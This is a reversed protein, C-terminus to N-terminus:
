SFLIADQNQLENQALEIFGYSDKACLLSVLVLWKLSFNITFHNISKEHQLYLNDVYKYILVGVILLFILFFTFVRIEGDANSTDM